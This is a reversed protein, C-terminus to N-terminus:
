TNNKTHSIQEPGPFNLRSRRIAVRNKGQGVNKIVLIRVLSASIFHVLKIAEQFHWTGRKNPSGDKSMKVFYTSTPIYKFWATM